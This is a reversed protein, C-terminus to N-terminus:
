NSEGLSFGSPLKFKSRDTFCYRKIEDDTQIEWLNVWMPPYLKSNEFELKFLVDPRNDRNIFISVDILRGKLGKPYDIDRGDVEFDYDKNLWMYIDTVTETM